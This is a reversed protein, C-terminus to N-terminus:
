TMNSKQRHPMDNSLNSVMELVLWLVPLLNEDSKAKSITSTQLVVVPKPPPHLPQMKYPRLLHFSTSSSM